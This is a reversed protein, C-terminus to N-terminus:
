PCGSRRWPLHVSSYLGTSSVRSPVESSVWPREEVEGRSM